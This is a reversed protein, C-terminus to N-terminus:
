IRIRIQVLKDCINIISWILCENKPEKSLHDYYQVERDNPFFRVMTSGFGIGDPKKSVRIRSLPSWHHWVSLCSCGSDDVYHKHKRKIFSHIKLEQKKAAPNLLQSTGWFFNHGEKTDQWYNDYSFILHYHLHHNYSCCLFFYIFFILHLSIPLVGSSGKVEIWYLVICYSEVDLYYNM